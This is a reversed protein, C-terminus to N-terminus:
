KLKKRIQAEFGNSVLVNRAKAMKSRDTYPGVLVRHWKETDRVTVELVSADLNLLILEARVSQADEEHKFSAVQLTFEAKEQPQQITQPPTTSPTQVESEKLMDYFTFKPADSKAPKHAQQKQPTKPQAITPKKEPQKSLHILFMIFAGLISGTFLWVWAPIRSEVKRKRSQSSQRKPQTRSM